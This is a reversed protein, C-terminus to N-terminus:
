DSRTRRSIALAPIVGLTFGACLALFGVGILKPADSDILALTSSALTAIAVGITAGTGVARRDTTRGGPIVQGSRIGVVLLGLGILVGVVIPTSSANSAVAAWIALGLFVGGVLGARLTGDRTHTGEM